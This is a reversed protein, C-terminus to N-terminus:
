YIFVGEGGLRGSNVLERIGKRVREVMTAGYQPGLPPMPYGMDPRLWSVSGKGECADKMLKFRADDYGGGTIIAVPKKSYNQSGVNESPPLSQGELLLPIEAAGAEASLIVHIVEIEPLLGNKVGTAIQPSAGCLVIPIPESM